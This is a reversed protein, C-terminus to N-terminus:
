RLDFHIFSACMADATLFGTLEPEDRVESSFEIQLADISRGAHALVNRGVFLTDDIEDVDRPWVEAFSFRMKLADRFGGRSFISSLSPDRQKMRTLTTGFPRGAGLIISPAPAADNSFYTHLDILIAGDGGIRKAHAIADDLESYFAEWYPKAADSGLACFSGGKDNADRGVDLYPRKVEVYVVTPSGGLCAGLHAIFARSIERLQRDFGTRCPGSDCVLAHDPLCYRRPLPQQTDCSTPQKRGAHTVVVVVPLDGKTTTVMDAPADCTAAILLAILAPSV